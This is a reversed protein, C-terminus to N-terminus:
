DTPTGYGEHHHDTLCPRCHSQRCIRCRTDAPRGCGACADPLANVFAAKTRWVKRCDVTTCRILSYASPTVRYGNFASRNFNRQVVVWQPRHTRDKCAHM